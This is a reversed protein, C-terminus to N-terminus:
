PSCYPSGFHQQCWPTIMTAQAVKEQIIKQLCRNILNWPPQSLSTPVSEVSHRLRRCCPQESGSAMIRVKSTTHHEQGCLPRRRKSNRFLITSTGPLDPSRDDLQEQPLTKEIRLRRHHQASGCYSKVSNHYGTSSVMEVPNNCTGNSTTVKDRRTQEHLVHLHHQRYSHSDAHQASSSINKLRSLSSSAGELQNVDHSGPSDLPRVSNESSQQTTSPQLGMWQQQCRRLSDASANAPSHEQRELSKLQNEVMPTRHHMRTDTVATQGLRTVNQGNPEENTTSTPHLTSSTDFCIHRSPDEHHSQPHHSGISDPEKLNTSYQTPPRAIEKGAIPSDDQYYGILLRPTRNITNPQSQVEQLQHAMRAIRIKSSNTSYTTHSADQQRRHHDLRGPIREFSNTTLTGMRSDTEHAQHFAMARSFPWITNYLVSLDTGALELPSIPTLRSPHSYTPICRVPRDFNSFQITQDIENGSRSNGDQLSSGSYIPQTIQSQVCAPFRREEEPDCVYQQLIGSHQPLQPSTRNCGESAIPHDRSKTFKTSRPQISYNTYTHRSTSTTLHIPNPVRTSHNTIALRRNFTHDMTYLVPQSSWRRLPVFCKSNITAFPTPVARQNTTTKTNTTTPTPIVTTTTGSLLSVARGRPRVQDFFSNPSFTNNNFIKTLFNRKKNRQNGANKLAQATTTQQVLATQFAEPSMTFNTTSSSTSTFQPNIAQFAITNRLENVQASVNLLLSRCDRLMHLYRQVNANDVEKSIEL